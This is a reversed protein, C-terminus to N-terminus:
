HVAVRSGKSNGTAAAVPRGAEKKNQNVLRVKKKARENKKTKEGRIRSLRRRRNERRGL